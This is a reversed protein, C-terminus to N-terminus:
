KKELDLLGKKKKKEKQFKRKLATKFIVVIKFANKNIFDLQDLDPGIISDIYNLIKWFTNKKTLFQPENDHINHM